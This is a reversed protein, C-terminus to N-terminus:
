FRDPAALERLQVIVPELTQRIEPPMAELLKLAFRSVSAKVIEAGNTGQSSFTITKETEGEHLTIIVQSIDRQWISTEIGGIEGAELREQFGAEKLIQELTLVLAESLRSPLTIQYTQESM